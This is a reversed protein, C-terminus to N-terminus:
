FSMKERGIMDVRGEGRSHYIRPVHKTLIGQKGPLRNMPTLMLIGWDFRRKRIGKPSKSGESRRCPASCATPRSAAPPTAPWTCWTSHWRCTSTGLVSCCTHNYLWAFALLMDLLLGMGEQVEGNANGDTLLVGSFARLTDPEPADQELM